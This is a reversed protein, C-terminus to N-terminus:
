PNMKEFILGAIIAQFFALVFWTAVIALSVSMSSYILWMMPFTAVAIYILGFEVGRTIFSGTLVGKFRNWFWALALGIVFPHLYYFVIRNSESDFAPDFYQMAINPFILSTAFLGLISLILLSTGAVLGSTIIKKM